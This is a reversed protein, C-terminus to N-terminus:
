GWFALVVAGAAMLGAGALRFGMDTERFMAWGWLTGFLGNLRKISLMYAAQTLAIAQYHCLLHALLLGAVALGRGPRRALDRLRLRGALAMGGLLLVSQLTFTACVAFLPDSQLVTKKGLVGTLGYICAATLMYLSGRERRISALPAWFSGHGRRMHLVYGGATAAVIGVGGAWTPTEGLLLQGTVIAFVPTLSLFPMTLSLPSVQIARMHLLYGASNLPLLVAQSAWFGPEVGSFGRLLLLGLFFPLSYALPYASMSWPDLDSFSRKAVASETASSLATLLSLWFWLV